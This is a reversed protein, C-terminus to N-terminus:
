LRFPIYDKLREDSTETLAVCTIYFGSQIDVNFQFRTLSNDYFMYTSGNYRFSIDDPELTNHSDFIHARLTQCQLFNIVNISM